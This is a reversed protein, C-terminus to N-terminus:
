LMGRGPDAVLLALLIPLYIISAFFLARARAETRRRMLRFGILLLGAGLAFAGALFIRGGIGARVSAIALPISALSYLVALRATLDGSRDIVPLVRFGGKEYDDRYLWALALFHPIQWLFLMAGLIWAGLDCRGVAAAWGMMPPLAGCIAGIMTCLPTRPKLPTYVLVYIAADILGLSAALSGSGTILILLGTAICIGGFRLAHLFPIRGTPVPRFHTRDMRADRRWEWAQNMAVSGGAMLFTGILTAVMRWYPFAGSGWAKRGLIFGVACTAVVLSTLGAKCLELYASPGRASTRQRQRRGPM